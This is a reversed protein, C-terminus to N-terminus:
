LEWKKDRKVRVRQKIERWEKSGRKYKSDIERLKMKSEKTLEKVTERTQRLKISILEKVTKENRLMDRNCRREKRTFSTGGKNLKEIEFNEATFEPTM